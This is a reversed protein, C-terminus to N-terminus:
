YCTLKLWLDKICESFIVEVNERYLHMPVCIEGQRLFTLPGSVTMMQIFKTSSSDEISYVLFSGWLKRPEPPSSKSTNKGYIPMAAMKNLNRPIM